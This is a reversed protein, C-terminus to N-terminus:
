NQSYVSYSFNFTNDKQSDRAIKILDTYFMSFIKCQPTDQFNRLKSTMWSEMHKYVKRQLATTKTWPIPTNIMNALYNRNVSVMQAFSKVTTGTRRLEIKMKQSITTTDFDENEENSSSTQVEQAEFPIEELVKLRQSKELDLWFCVNILATKLPQNTKTWRPPSNFYLSVNARPIQAVKKAFTAM